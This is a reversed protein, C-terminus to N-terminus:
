GKVAGGTLGSIFYKQVFVFFVVLPILVICVAASLAGWDTGFQASFSILGIPITKMQSSSLEVSAWLLEGWWSVFLFIANTAIAPIMLPAAVKFFAKTESCGDIRAAELLEGPITDFYNRFIYITMPMGWGVYPIILSIYTATLGLKNTMVYMPMIVSESPTMTCALILLMILEAYKIHFRSLAYGALSGFALTIVMTCGVVILSNLMYSGINATVWAKLYNSAAFTKPLGWVNTYFEATPKFSTLMVFLIPYITLIVYIICFIRAVRGTRKKGKRTKETNM